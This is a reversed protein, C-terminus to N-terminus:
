INIKDISMAVEVQIFEIGVTLLHHIAGIFIPKGADQNGADIDLCTLFGDMTGMFKLKSIGSHTKMGITTLAPISFTM